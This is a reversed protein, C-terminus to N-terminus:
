HNPNQHSLSELSPVLPVVDVPLNKLTGKAAHSQRAVARARPANALAQLANVAKEVLQNPAVLQPVNAILVALDMRLANAAVLLVNVIQVGVQVLQVRVPRIANAHVLLANAVVDV